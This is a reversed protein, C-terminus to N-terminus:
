EPWTAESIGKSSALRLVVGELNHDVVAPISYVDFFPVSDRIGSNFAIRGELAAQYYRQKFGPSVWFMEPMHGRETETKEIYKQIDVFFRLWWEKPEAPQAPAPPIVALGLFAAIRAFAGRRTM